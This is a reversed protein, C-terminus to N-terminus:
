LSTPDVTREREITWGQTILMPANTRDNTGTITLLDPGPGVIRLSNSITLGGTVVNTLVGTVAFTVVDGNQATPLLTRLTGPGNNALNTVVLTAAAGRLPWALWVVLLLATAHQFGRGARFFPDSKAM